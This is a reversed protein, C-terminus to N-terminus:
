AYSDDEYGVEEFGVIPKALALKKIVEQAVRAAIEDRIENTRKYITVMVPGSIRMPIIQWRSLLSPTIMDGRMSKIEM